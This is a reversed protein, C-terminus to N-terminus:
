QTPPPKPPPAPAPANSDPESSEEPLIRVEVRFQHYNEFIVDNIATVIPQTVTETHKKKFGSTDPKGKRDVYFWNGHFIQAQARSISTSEIPCIYTKGGIEVPGYDVVVDIKEMPLEPQLDTKLVLRFIAGSAPDIALEGHYAPVAEFHRMEGNEARFCCYRVTYNSRDEAVAYRFVALPGAAGQEWHGWGIKGKMVDTMVLGLLPGFVGWNILGTSSTVSSGPKKGAPPEVVERGNRYTVTAGVRDIFHFGQNAVVVPEDLGYSVRMDQFRTTTRSAYFDPMRPVTAMVFDAAKSVIRGQAASDPPPLHLTDAAPLNLFASADTLALLALQTREGPFEAKLHDYREKSLRETLEMTTLRLAAEKDPWDKSAALAQELQEVTVPTTALAPVALSVLALSVLALLLAVRLSNPRLHGLPSKQRSLRFSLAEPLVPPKTTSNRAPLFPLPM